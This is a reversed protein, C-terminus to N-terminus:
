GVEGLGEDVAAWGVEGVEGWWCLWYVLDRHALSRSM